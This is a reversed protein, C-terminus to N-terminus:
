SKGAADKIFPLRAHAYEPRQALEKLKSLTKFPTSVSMANIVSSPIPGAPDSLVQSEVRVGGDPTPTLTWQQHSKVIRVLDKKPPMVDQTATDTITVTLTSTNQTIERQNLIDRNSIPWPMKMMSYVQYRTDSDRHTIESHAVVDTLEHLVAVDNIVAVVSSLSGAIRTVGRMEHISWGDVSRSYIQIGDQDKELQWGAEDAGVAPFSLAAALAVLSWFLIRM